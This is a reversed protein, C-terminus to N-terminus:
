HRKVLFSPLVTFYKQDLVPMNIDVEGKTVKKEVISFSEVNFNPNGGFIM